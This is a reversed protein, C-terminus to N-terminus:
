VRGARKRVDKFASYFAENDAIGREIIVGADDINKLNLVLNVSEGFAAMDDMTRVTASLLVAFINRRVSMPLHRIYDLVGSEDSGEEDFTEGVVILDYLHSRMSKLADPPAASKTVYYGMKELVTGLNERVVFDSECVLAMKGGEKIFNFPKDLANDSESGRENLLIKKKDDM